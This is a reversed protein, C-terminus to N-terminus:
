EALKLLLKGDEIQIDEIGEAFSKWFGDNDGFKEVLDINKLQGLWSNPIPVGWVSVGRLIVSPRNDTYSLEAGSSVKLTKGGIFPFDPDMDILLKVSALDETLDVVVQEALDTNEALLSNLERETLEILRKSDDESYVEPQLDQQTASQEITLSTDAPKDENVSNDFTGLASLKESLTAQESESLQVPKFKGNLWSSNIAWLTGAVTIVVTLIILALVSFCGM